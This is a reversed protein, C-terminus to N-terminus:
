TQEPEPRAGSKWQTEEGQAQAAPPGAAPPEASPPKRRPLTKRPTKTVRAEGPTQPQPADAPLERQWGSRFAAVVARAAEPTREAPTPEAPTPSGPWVPFPNTGASGGDKLHPSLNAQRVRRPLGRYSGASTAGDGDTGSPLEDGRGVHSGSAPRTVAADGTGGAGDAAGPRGAPPSTRGRRPLPIAGHRPRATGPGSLLGALPDAKGAPDPARRRKGVGSGNGVGAGNGAGAGKAAGTIAGDTSTPADLVTPASWMPAPEDAAPADAESPSSPLTPRRPALGFADESTRDRRAPEPPIREIAPMEGSALGRRASAAPVMISHPILVAATTGGYPSTELSVRVGHRAALRGVVFLGLQDPDAAAFEPTRLLKQNIESLQDPQIGLGRDEVEVVFGGAVRETRVEVGAGSPSFLTANEILEALLHMLDATAAGIVADQTKADVRVRQYDEVEAMAGRIVDIVPVPESWSRGTSSGSLVILNEANRRMRTTLHDLSFLDALEAPDSAKQELADILHLQRQLLSQNRRALSVVVQTAGQRLSAEDTATAVAAESLHRATTELGAVERTLRRAFLGMAIAGALVVVLGGGVQVAVEALGPHGASFLGRRVDAGGPTFAVALAWLVVLCVVPVIVMTIFTFRISRRGPEPRGPGPTRAVGM